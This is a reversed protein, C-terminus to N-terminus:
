RAPAAVSQSALAKALDAAIPASVDAIDPRHWGKAGATDTTVTALGLRRQLWTQRVSVTQVSGYPVTWARRSLVGRTVQVSTERLGYRHHRRQLLAVGVPVLVLPLGLWVPALWFGGIAFMVFLLWGHRLAARLIHGRSVPTLGETEFVPLGAAAVVRVVEDERAFPAVQQRGSADDSGGLTQLELSYWGLRGSVPARRILGLQVRAKVIV